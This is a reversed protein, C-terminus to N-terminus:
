WPQRNPLMEGLTISTGDKNLLLEIDPAFDGMQIMFERCAGCSAVVEGNELVSCVKVIHREGATIMTTIANREACIGLGCDTDINAGTYINGKDTLVAAGVIGSRITPSLQWPNLTAKAADYVKQWEPTMM